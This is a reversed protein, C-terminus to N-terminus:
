PAICMLGALADERAFFALVALTYLAWLAVWTDPRRLWAHAEIESPKSHALQSSM